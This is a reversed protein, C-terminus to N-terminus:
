QDLLRMTTSRLSLAFPSEPFMELVPRRAQIAQIVREDNQIHGACLVDVGFFERCASAMRDGLARDGPRSAQNVILRPAYGKLDNALRPAAQPCSECVHRMLDRPSRVGRKVKDELVRDVLYEVKARQISQRLKRYFVAKLFHYANEVSTPTPAVVMIQERAALFFDMVTFSSGAGLDIFIHDMDLTSLQRIFKMKRAHAPNAMDLLARAGSILFLNEHDTPLVIDQLAAVDRRFFDTLTRSPRTMGILTHLNAGGLDADILVCREGRAALSLAMNATIVSKGVGGKGGGIAWMRPLAPNPLPRSSAESRPASSASPKQCDAQPGEGSLVM